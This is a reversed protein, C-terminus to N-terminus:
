VQVRRGLIEAEDDTPFNAFRIVSQGYNDSSVQVKEIDFPKRLIRFERGRIIHKWQRGWIRKTDGM